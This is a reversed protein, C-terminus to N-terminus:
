QALRLCAAAHLNHTGDAEVEHPSGFPRLWSGDCRLNAGQPLDVGAQQANAEGFGTGAVTTHGHQQLSHGQATTGRVM